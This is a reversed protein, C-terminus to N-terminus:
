GKLSMEQYFTQPMEFGHGDKRAFVKHRSYKAKVFEKPRRRLLFIEEEEEWGGPGLFAPSSPM